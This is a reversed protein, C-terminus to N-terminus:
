NQLSVKYIQETIRELGNGDILNAEIYNSKRKLYKKINELLIENKQKRNYKYFNFLVQGLNNKALYSNYRNQNEATELVLAFKKLYVREASSVGGAGILYGADTLVCGLNKPEIHLEFKYENSWERLKNIHKSVQPLVVIIKKNLSETKIIQLLNKLILYIDGVSDLGLSIVVKDSDGEKTLKARDLKIKDNIIVADNGCVINQNKTIHYETKQVGLNPNIILRSWSDSVSFDDIRILPKIQSLRKFDTDYYGYHDIIVVDIGMTLMIQQEEIIDEVTKWEKYNTNKHPEFHFAQVEPSVQMNVIEFGAQEIHVNLNGPLESVFFISDNDNERLATAISLCRRLHGSSILNSSDVRFAAKM